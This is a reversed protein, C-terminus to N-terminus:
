PASLEALAREAAAREEEVSRREHELAEREQEAAEHERRLTEARQQAKRVERELDRVRTRLERVRARAEAALQRRRQAEERRRQADDQQKPPRSAKPPPAPSPKQATPAPRAKTARRRTAPVAAGALAEFGPPELEESMRGQKLLARGEETLAAAHLTSLVRDLNPEVPRGADSIIQRASEALRQLARQQDRRAELLQDAGGGRMAEAQAAAIQEGAKVLRQVDLEYRRALQNVVWAPLSPKRLEEVRAARAGQDEKRARRVLDNRAQTFQELPLGYLRDLEQQFETEDALTVIARSGGPFFGRSAGADIRSM